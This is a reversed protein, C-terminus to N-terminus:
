PLMRRSGSLQRPDEMNDPLAVKTVKPLPAAQKLKVWDTWTSECGPNVAGRSHGRRHGVPMISRGRWGPSPVSFDRSWGGQALQQHTKKACNPATKETERRSSSSLTRAVKQRGHTTTRRQPCMEALVRSLLYLNNPCRALAGSQLSAVQEAPLGPHM